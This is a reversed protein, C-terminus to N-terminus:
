GLLHGLLDQDSVEKTSNKGGAAVRGGPLNGSGRAGKPPLYAKGQDSKLWEAVGESLPIEEDKSKKWVIAGEEDTRIIGQAYRAEVVDDLYQEMVGGAALAKRLEGRETAKKAKTAEEDRAKKESTYADRLKKNEQELKKLRRDTATLKGEKPDKETDDDEDDGEDDDAEAAAKKKSGGLADKILGGLEGKLRKSLGSMAAGISKNLQDETIYKPSEKNEEGGEGTKGETKDNQDPM